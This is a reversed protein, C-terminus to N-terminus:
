TIIGCGLADNARTALANFVDVAFATDIVGIWAWITIIIAEVIGCILM